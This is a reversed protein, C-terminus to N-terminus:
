RDKLNFLRKLCLALPPLTKRLAAKALPSHQLRNAIAPSWSYYRGVLFRGTRSALLVQDRFLRLDKVTRHHRPFAASAIFCRSHTINASRLLIKYAKPNKAGKRRLSAKKIITAFLNTYSLFEGLKEAAQEQKEAYNPHLDYIEVLAWLAGSILTVERPQDKFDQVTLANRKKEYIYEIVKLYKEYAIAAQAYEKLALLNRAQRILTLRNKWLSNRFNKQIIQEAHLYSANSLTKSLTKFCSTCVTEFPVKTGENELRLRMGQDIPHLLTTNTGCQPCGQQYSLNSM